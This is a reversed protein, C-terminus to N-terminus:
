TARSSVVQRQRPSRINVIEEDKLGADRFDRRAHAWCFALKIKEHKAAYSKYASYRDVLLIGEVM